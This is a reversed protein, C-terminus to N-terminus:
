LTTVSAVKYADHIMCRVAGFSSCITAAVVVDRLASVAHQHEWASGQDPQYDSRTQALPSPLLLQVVVVVVVVALQVAVM